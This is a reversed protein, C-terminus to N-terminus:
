NTTSLQCTSQQICWGIGSASATRATSPTLSPFLHGMSLALMPGTRVAHGLSAVCKTHLARLLSAAIINQRRDSPYRELHHCRRKANNTAHCEAALHQICTNCHSVAVASRCIAARPRTTAVASREIYSALAHPYYCALSNTQAAHLSLPTMPTCLTPYCLLFPKCRIQSYQMCGICCADRHTHMM